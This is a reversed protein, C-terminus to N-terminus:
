MRWQKVAEKDAATVRYSDRIKQVAKNQTERDLCGEKLLATTKEQDKVYAEAVGWAVAMKVYYGPHKVRRYVTFVRDLWLADTYYHMLSVVAFRLAFEDEAILYPQLFRFFGEREKKVATLGAVTCDCVAWNNIKLIFDDLQALLHSFDGKQYGLVLGYLMMEEYVTEQLLPFLTEGNGKAIEKALRRLQPMRVGVVVSHDTILKQHFERYPEDALGRLEHCLLQYDQESWSTKNWEM